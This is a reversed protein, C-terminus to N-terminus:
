SIDGRHELGSAKANIASALKHALGHALSGRAVRRDSYALTEQLTVM